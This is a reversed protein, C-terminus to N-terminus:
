YGGFTVTPNKVSCEGACPWTALRLWAKGRGIFGLSMLRGPALVGMADIFGDEDLRRRNDVDQDEFAAFYSEEGEDQLVQLM